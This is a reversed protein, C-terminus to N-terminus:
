RWFRWITPSRATTAGNPRPWAACRVHGPRGDPAAALLAAVGEDGLFAGSEDRAETLGDTALVVTAGVPLDVSGVGFTSDPGLGVIPGTPPLQEVM